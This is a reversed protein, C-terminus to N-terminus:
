LIRFACYRSNYYNTELHAEVSGLFQTTCIFFNCSKLGVNYNTVFKLTERHLLFEINLICLLSITYVERLNQHTFKERYKIISKVLM